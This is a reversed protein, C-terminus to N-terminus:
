SVLVDSLRNFAARYLREVDATTRGLKKAIRAYSLRDVHIAHVHQFVFRSDADLVSLVDAVCDDLVPAPISAAEGIQTAPRAVLRRAADVMERGACVAYYGLFTASTRRGPRYTRVVQPFRALGVQELEDPDCGFKDAYAGAKRKVWGRVSWALAEKAEGTPDRGRVVLRWLYDQEAPTLWSDPRRVQSLLEAPSRFRPRRVTTLQRVSNGM